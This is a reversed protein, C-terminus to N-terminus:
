INLYVGNYEEDLDDDFNNDIDFDNETELYTCHQWFSALM